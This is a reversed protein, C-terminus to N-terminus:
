RGASAPQGHGPPTPRPIHGLWANRAGRQAARDDQCYASRARHHAGAAKWFAAREGVAFCDGSRQRRRRRPHGASSELAKTLDCPPAREAAYAVGSDGPGGPNVFLSGIRQDPRSALRRIVSLEIRPGDPDGWDLPVPVRACELQDGCAIWGIQSEGAGAPVASGEGTGAEAMVPAVVALLLGLALAVVFWRRPRSSLARGAPVHSSM